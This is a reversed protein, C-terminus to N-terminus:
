SNMSYSELSHYLQKIIYVFVPQLSLRIINVSTQIIRSLMRLGFGIIKNYM